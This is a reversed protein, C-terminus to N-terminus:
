FKRRFKYLTLGTGALVGLTPAIWMANTMLGAILLASTNIPIIEGSVPFVVQWPNSQFTPGPTALLTGDNGCHAFTWGGITNMVTDDSDDGIADVLSAEFQVVAWMLPMASGAGATDTVTASGTMVLNAAGGSNGFTVSISDLPNSTLTIIVAQGDAGQLQWVNTLGAYSLEGAGVSCPLTPYANGGNPAFVVSSGAESVWISGAQDFPFAGATYTITQISGQARPNGGNLLSGAPGPM